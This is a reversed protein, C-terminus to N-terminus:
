PEGSPLFHYDACLIEKELAAECWNRLSGLPGLEGEMNQVQYGGIAEMAGIVANETLVNEHQVEILLEPRFRSITNKGGLLVGNEAGQVDVKVADLRDLKVREAWRDLTILTVPVAATVGRNNWLNTALLSHGGSDSEDQFLSASGETAALALSELQVEKWGNERITRALCAANRPHPEFAYVRLNPLRQKASLTFLGVNAGVDLFVPAGERAAARASLIGEIIERQQPEYSALARWPDRYGHGMHFSPGRLDRYDVALVPGKPFRVLGQDPLLPALLRRAWRPKALFNM